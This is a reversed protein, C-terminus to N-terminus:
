EFAEVATLTYAGLCAVFLVVGLMLTVAPAWPLSLVRADFCPRRHLSHALRANPRGVLGHSAASKRRAIIAGLLARADPAAPNTPLLAGVSPIASYRFVGEWDGLRDLRRLEEQHEPAHGVQLAVTESHEAMEVGYQNLRYLVFAGLVALAAAVTQAITSFTYFLAAQM